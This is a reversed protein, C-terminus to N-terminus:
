HLPNPLEDVAPRQCRRAHHTFRQPSSLGRQHKPLGQQVKVSPLFHMMCRSNFLYVEDSLPMQRYSNDLLSCNMERVRERQVNNPLEDVAPRMVDVQNILLDRHLHCGKCKWTAYMPVNNPLKDVAPTLCRSPQHSFRQPSSTRVRNIPFVDKYKQCKIADADHM